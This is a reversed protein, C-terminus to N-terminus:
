LGGTMIVERTLLSEFLAREPDNTYHTAQGLVEVITLCSKATGMQQWYARDPKFGDCVLARNFLAVQASMGTKFM